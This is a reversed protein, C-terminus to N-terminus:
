GRVRAEYQQDLASRIKLLESLAPWIFEEWADENHDLDYDEAFKEIRRLIAAGARKANHRKWRKRHPFNM